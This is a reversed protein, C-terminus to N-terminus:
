LAFPTSSSQHALYKIDNDNAASNHAAAAGKFEGSAEKGNGWNTDNEADEADEANEATFSKTVSGPSISGSERM